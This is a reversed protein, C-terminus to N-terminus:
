YNVGRLRSGKWDVQDPVGQGFMPLKPASYSILSQDAIVDARAPLTMAFIIVGLAALKTASKM